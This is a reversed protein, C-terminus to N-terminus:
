GLRPDDMGNRELESQQRPVVVTRRELFSRGSVLRGISNNALEKYISQYKHQHRRQTGTVVKLGMNDAMKAAALVQRVGATDVAIPKKWLCM